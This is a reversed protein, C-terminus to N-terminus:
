PSNEDTRAPNDRTSMSAVFTSGACARTALVHVCGETGRTKLVLEGSRVMEPLGDLLMDINDPEM